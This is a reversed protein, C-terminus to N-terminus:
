ACGRDWFFREIRASFHALTLGQRARSCRSRCYCRRSTSRPPPSAPSALPRWRTHTTRRAQPQTSAAHWSHCPFLGASGCSSGGPDPPPPSPVRFPRRCRTPSHPGAGVVVLPIARRARRPPSPPPPPPPPHGSRQARYLAQWMVPAGWGWKVLESVQSHLRTLENVLQHTTCTKHSFLTFRRLDWGNSGGTRHCTDPQFKRGRGAGSRELYRLYCRSKGIGGCRTTGVATQQGYRRRARWPTRWDRRAHRSRSYRRADLIVRRFDANVIIVILERFREKPVLVVGGFM